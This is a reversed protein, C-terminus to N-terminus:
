SPDFEAANFDFNYNGGNTIAGTIAFGGAIGGGAGVQEGTGTVAGNSGGYAQALSATQHVAAGNNIALSADNESRAGRWSVNWAEGTNHVRTASVSGAAAGSKTLAGGFGTGDNAVVLAGAKSDAVGGQAAIGATVGAANPGFTVGSSASYTEGNSHAESGITRNNLNPSHDSFGAGTNNTAGAVSGQSSYSAGQNGYTYGGAAAGTGSFTGSVSGAHEIGGNTGPGGANVMGAFALAAILTFIKNM